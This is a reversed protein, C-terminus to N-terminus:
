IELPKGSTIANGTEHLSRQDLLKSCGEDFWPEHKKFEYYGLSGKATIKINYYNGL